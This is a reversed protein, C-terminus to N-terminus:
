VIGEEMEHSTPAIVSEQGEHPGAADHRAMEVREGLEAVTPREFVTRLPLEVGFAERIRAMVRTAMLSHGGLEFFSDHVGVQDLKLIECWIGALVEETPTRPATYTVLVIGADIEPPPLARRDLKGHPTRPLENLVILSAPVMYNPLRGALYGRLDLSTDTPRDTLVVYGVLRREMHDGESPVVVAQRVAPLELLVNAIEELEIRYGRIKIQHDGRGLLEINGDKLLRAHDGTRYLRADEDPSLPDPIFREATLRPQGLYGRTVQVGGIFLEGVVGVPVPQLWQDLIYAQTNNLPRGIPVSGATRRKRVDVTYTVAGVTAETSGYHNVIQCNPSLAQISSIWEWHSVDGGVVLLKRPLIGARRPSEILLQLHPPAIKLCDIGRASVYQDLREPDRSLEPRVIHLVGAFLLSSYLTTVSSGVSLPQVMLRSVVGDPEVAGVFSWIYNVVQRHEVLVGKPRGTSGSTYLLYAVNAPRTGCAPAFAPQRAIEDWDTDIRIVRCESLQKALGSETVVVSSCADNLMYVIRWRPYSPDLPLYAGGAKLIGLLGIVMELSPEVFLGVVCEPGVGLGRLHHALQNARHDLEAFTLYRNGHIVAIATPVREAQESFLDHLCRDHPYKVQRGISDAVIQRREVDTLVPLASVCCSPHAVIGTLLTEFHKVLREITSQDFLSTAYEVHGQVGSPTESVHMSLDFKATVHEGALQSSELGPLALKGAPANQVAFMVQVLPQHSLDRVPQLEEVLREFPLEQHAYAELATDKVRRLFDQFCPDGSVDTRLVVTNAFFGVLRELEPHRRGAIPSGVVIDTQGSYRALLLQLAALLVMYLTVAERRSLKLLQSSLQRPLTFPIRSGAFSQVAPRSRDTPLNLAAPAGKLQQRWYAVQSELFDGQMWERQWIAYDAYQVSLEPLAARRGVVFAAYLVSLEELLIGVSWGDSVIHHMNVLLVHDRTGLRVITARLLPGAVLDFLQGADQRILNRVQTEKVDEGVGSLDMRGLHFDALEDIAQVTLGNVEKFRTRLSQHRRLVESFSSELATVDLAGRLRFASPMNYAAGVLGLESLFWLREQAFSLPAPKADCRAVLRPVVHKVGDRRAAEVWEALEAITPAGFLTRLPLELGFAERTRAMVRTALLSHGGLEFFNDAVGVREVKLVEAWIGALVEESPTRPAVYAGVEPRENPVPLARRDVKGNPMLPFSELFVFSAPLMYEPLSRKLYGRLVSAEPAGDEGVVYAALRKDGSQDDQAVVVADRVSPHAVLATEIEGLEVRHGRVKVQHDLRGLYELNGDSRWRGLDGTRYLREGAGFPSPVFREATLAPRHLYGRALGAGGIYLEGTVGIPVPRLWGDLAYTQVNSIPRGIPVTGEERGQSVYCTADAAIESSGYLNVFRCGPLAALLRRLLDESLAEGSLTWSRLGALRERARGEAVLALALSPVTILRSVQAREILLTLEEPDRGATESAVVLAVGRCLPGLTEFIADVFGIPTKQCCIDNDTFPVIRAQAAIRNMMAGHTGTVGKPIGTSGSTYIVYALNGPGVCDALAQTPEKGIAPWHADLWVVRGDHEPLQGILGARTVVVAASADALMYKLREQPYSPDLPLYAAGAKLIGLLGVVMEISREVCLGVVLEPGVGFARLYHALQNSRRDLETFSLQRDEYILAVADATRAAREAILGHICKDQPYAAATANWEATLLHREAEGLLVFESLRCDPDAAIGGLLREFHGALREVTSGEFLDTAYEFQGRLGQETEQVYLSLDFKATVGDIEVSAVSLGPLELREQPVNQLALFVQFIPQRSLDRVPRLVEVLKEFPLDQHAYAGLAVEKVRRLLERFSPDGSLDTRLALTNVFFGILGETQRHRRGAIPTGVVIDDQGSWRSLTAQFAAVLVMFLTAGEGRALRALAATIEQSVLFGHTKGRFSQVAPHKRDAPLDLVAPAGALRGKWFAVQQELVEGQLWDRQWLAYDAYQVSLEALPSSGGVVLAAYLAGVERILLGLSWGDSIIHHMVVVVVHEAASLKLLTARFLPGRELDFPERAMEGARRRVAALREDDALGSLDGVELHLSGAQEIVQVPTGDVAAFRTRLMEHRKVLECFARELAAIDLGGELRVGAAITYAAGAAGLQELFWLREQAFSAPAETRPQHKELAPIVIAKGHHVRQEIQEVLDRVSAGEFLSELPVEVGFVDRLRSIIRAALLSDGGLEFFGETVGVRRGGLAETWIQAVLEEELSQPPAYSDRPKASDSCHWQAVVSLRGSLFARRARGRQVKGSTTKPLNGQKILIIAYPELGHRDVVARVITELVSSAENRWSRRLEQVIVLREQGDREISFAAGADPRLAIHCQGVTLEIDHPYHNVGRIIILDKLRGVIFLNGNLLFGLDGSRLFENDTADSVYANFTRRSEQPCNWYGCGVSRGRIWVEGVRGDDCEVRTRPDVVVVQQGAVPRGCSVVRYAVHGDVAPIASGRKELEDRDVELVLPRKRKSGASVMLTAEALGYCPLFSRYHFGCQGFYKAFRELTQARITEAGSFAVDWSQLNLEHLREADIRDLCLEYAFNPGGSVTAQYRSISRLWVLPQALFAAPSLLTVPYGSFLPQIVGSMLGMDHYLPLWSVGVADVGLRMARAVLSANYLLNDHTIRVGKPTSTAGSTYQLIALSDPTSAREVEGATGGAMLEHSMVFRLKRLAVAHDGLGFSEVNPISTGIATRARTDNVITALWPASSSLRSPCVPVAIAGAYLTGFFSGIFELSSTALLIVCERNAGQRSLSAGILRARADLEGYTVTADHNAAGGLFRYGVQDPQKAARLELLEALTGAIIRRQSTRGMNAM